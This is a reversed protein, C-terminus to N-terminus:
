NSKKPLSNEPYPTADGIRLLILPEAGPNAFERTVHPVKEYKLQGELGAMYSASGWYTDLVWVNKYQKLLVAIREYGEINPQWSEVPIKWLDFYPTRIAPSRTTLVISQPYDM